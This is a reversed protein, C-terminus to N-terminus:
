TEQQQAGHGAYLTPHHLKQYNTTVEEHLLLTLFTTIANNKSQNEYVAINIEAPANSQLHHNPLPNEKCWVGQHQKATSKKTKM